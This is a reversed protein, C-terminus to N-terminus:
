REDATDEPDTVMRGTALPRRVTLGHRALLEGWVRLDSPLSRAFHRDCAENYADFYANSTMGAIHPGPNPLESASRCWPVHGIAEKM